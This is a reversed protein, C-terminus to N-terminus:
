LSACGRNNPSTNETQRKDYPDTKDKEPSAVYGTETLLELSHGSPLAAPPLCVLFSFLTLLTLMHCDTFSLYPLSVCCVGHSPVCIFSAGRKPPTSALASFRQRHGRSVSAVGGDQLKLPTLPAKILINEDHTTM